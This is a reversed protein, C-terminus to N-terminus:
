RTLWRFLPCGLVDPRPLSPPQGGGGACIEFHENIPRAILPHAADFGSAKMGAAISDVQRMALRPNKPHPKLKDLEIWAVRSENANKPMVQARENKRAKTYSNPKM